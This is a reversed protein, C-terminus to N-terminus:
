LFNILNVNNDNKNNKMRQGRVAEELFLVPERTNLSTVSQQVPYVVSRTFMLFYGTHSLSDCLRTELRQSQKGALNNTMYTNTVLKLSAVIEAVQIAELFDLGSVELMLYAIGQWNNDIVVRFAARVDPKPESLSLVNKWVWLSKKKRFFFCEKFPLSSDFFLCVFFLM